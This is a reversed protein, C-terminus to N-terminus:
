LSFVRSIKKSIYKNGFCHETHPPLIGTEKRLTVPKHEPLIEQLVFCSVMLDQLMARPTTSYGRVDGWPVTPHGTADGWPVTPHKRADGMPVASHGAANSPPIAPHGVAGGPVPATTLSPRPAAAMGQKVKQERAEDCLHKTPINQIDKGNKWCKQAACSQECPHCDWLFDPQLMEAVDAKLVLSATAAALFGQQKELFSSHM